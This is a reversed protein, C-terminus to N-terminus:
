SNKRRKLSLCVYVVTNVCAGYSVVLGQFLVGIYLQLVSHLNVSDVRFCYFQNVFHKCHSCGCQLVADCVSDCKFLVIRYYSNGDM